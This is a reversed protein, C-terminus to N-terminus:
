DEAYIPVVAAGALLYLCAQKVANKLAQELVAFPDVIGEKYGDVVKGSRFDVTHTKKNVLQEMIDVSLNVESNKAIQRMPAQCAAKLVKQALDREDLVQSARYLTAGGGVIVGDRLAARSANIADEVLFKRTERASDTDAGVKITGLASKMKAVRERAGDAEYDKLNPIQAQVEKIREEVDGAGGTIYMTDFNATLKEAVGFWEPQLQNLDRGDKHSVYEGGTVAVVDRVYGEGIQGLVTVQVPLLKFTGAHWNDLIVRLALDGFSPAIVVAQKKGFKEAVVQMIRLVEEKPQSLPQDIVLVPVDYMVAEQLEKNTFFFPSLLQCRVKMGVTKEPILAELPFDEVTIYSDPGLEHVLDAVVQGITEDRSSINAVKALMEADKILVKETSAAEIVRKSQEKIRDTLEVRSIAGDKLAKEAEDIIAQVLICATTTGDGAEDNTKQSAEQVFQAGMDEYPNEYRQRKAITVGDNTVTPYSSEGNYLAVYKGRPGLTIKVLDTLRDIGVKIKVQAEDHQVDVSNM